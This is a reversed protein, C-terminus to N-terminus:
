GFVGLIFLVVCFTSEQHTTNEIDTIPLTLHYNSNQAIQIHVDLFPAKNNTM